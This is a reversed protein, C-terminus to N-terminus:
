LKKLETLTITRQTQLTFFQKLGEEDYWNKIGHNTIDCYQLNEDYGKVTLDTISSKCCVRVDTYFDGHHVKVSSLSNNASIFLSMVQSHPRFFSDKLEDYNEHYVYLNDKTDRYDAEEGEQQFFTLLDSLLDLCEDKDIKCYFPKYHTPIYLEM